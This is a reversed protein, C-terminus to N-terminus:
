RSAAAPKDQPSAAAQRCTAEIVETIKMKTQERPPLDTRVKACTEALVGDLTIPHYTPEPFGAQMRSSVVYTGDPSFGAFCGDTVLVLNVGLTDGDAIWTASCHGRALLAGNPSFQLVTEHSAAPIEGASRVAPESNGVKWLALGDTGHTAFREGDPSVAYLAHSTGPGTSLRGSAWDFLVSTGNEGKAFQEEDLGIVLNAGPYSWTQVLPRTAPLPRPPDSKNLAHLTPFVLVRKEDPSFEIPSRNAPIPQLETNAVTDTIRWEDGVRRAVLRGSASVYLGGIAGELLSGSKDFVRAPTPKAGSPPPQVVVHAEPPVVAFQDGNESRWRGPIIPSWTQRKLSVLQLASEGKAAAGNDRASVALMDSNPSFAAATAIWGDELTVYLVGKTIDKLSSRERAVDIIAFDGQSPSALTGALYRGSPSAVPFRTLNKPDNGFPLQFDWNTGVGLVRDGMAYREGDLLVLRGKADANRAIPKGPKGSIADVISLTRNGKFMVWRGDSSFVARPGSDADATDSDASDTDATNADPAPSPWHPTGSVTDYAQVAKKSWALVTTGDPSFAVGEIAPPFTVLTKLDGTAADIASLTTVSAVVAGGAPTFAAANISGPLSITRSGDIGVRFLEAYDGDYTLIQEGGADIAFRSVTVKIKHQEQLDPVSLVHITPEANGSVGFLKKSDRSFVLGYLQVITPKNALVPPMQLTARRWARYGGDTWATRLSEAALLASRRLDRSLSQSEGPTRADAETQEARYALSNAVKLNEQRLTERSGMVIATVLGGLVLVALLVAGGIIRQWYIRRKRDREEIQARPIDYLNALTMYWSSEYAGRDVRPRGPDFGRYDTALPMKLHACLADPFAMLASQESTAENNPLGAVLLPIIHDAGRALAFREIEDNVFQSARAAPSCLVILKSSDKLHREVSQFYETGTFDDEDRFVDLRRQPLPLDRPPTYNGLAKHLCAAFVKDKRSYSIFADHM